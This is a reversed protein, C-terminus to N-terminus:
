RYDTNHIWKFASSKSIHLSNAIEQYSLGKDRLGLVKTILEDNRSLNRPPFKRQYKRKGRMPDIARIKEEHLERHCTYCLWMVDLPKTYDEHHANVRGTSGCKECPQKKLSGNKVAIDVM